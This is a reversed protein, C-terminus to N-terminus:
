DVLAFFRAQAGETKAVKYWPGFFSVRRGTIAGLNTLGEMITIGQGLIIRHVVFDESTFQPLRASYEEFFDFGIAKPGREVLWRAGEPTLYPSQTFYDPFRGWMRDTWDTRLLVIDGRRLEVNCREFDAPGLGHNPECPTCDLVVAEGIVNSLPVEAMTTANEFVHLPSDVHSGTHLSQGIHTVQWFGPGRHVPELRVRVDTSPPGKTEDDVLVSLDIVQPM